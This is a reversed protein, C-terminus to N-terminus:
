KGEPVLKTFPGYEMPDFDNEPVYPYLRNHGGSTVSLLKGSTGIVWIDGTKDTYAGPGTPLAFSSKVLTFVWGEDKLDRLSIVARGPLNVFPPNGKVELDLLRDGGVSHANIHDGVHIKSLPTTM